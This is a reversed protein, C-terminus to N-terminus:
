SVPDLMEKNIKSAEFGLSRADAGSLPVENQMFEVFRRFDEMEKGVVTTPDDCIEKLVQRLVQEIMKEFSWEADYRVDIALDKIIGLLAYVHDRGDSCKQRGFRRIADKMTLGFTGTFQSYLERKADFINRAKMEMTWRNYRGPRAIDCQQVLMDIDRWLFSNKRYWIETNGSLLCEQVVWLREWYKQNCIDQIATKYDSPLYRNNSALGRHLNALSVNVDPKGRGLWVITKNAHSYVQHMLLVQQSREEMDEQNICLADVYILDSTGPATNSKYVELFDRLNETIRVRQGLREKGPRLEFNHRQGSASGWTYSLATYHTNPLDKVAIPVLSYRTKRGEINEQRLLRIQSKPDIPAGAAYDYSYTSAWWACAFFAAAAMGVTLGIDM